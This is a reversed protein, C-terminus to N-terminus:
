RIRKLGARNITTDHNIDTNVGEDKIVQHFIPNKIKSSEKFYYNINNNRM